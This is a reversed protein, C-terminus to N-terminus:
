NSVKLSGIRYWGDETKGENAVPITHLISNHFVVGMELDYNGTPLDAPLQYNVTFNNEGPLWGKISQSSIVVAKNLANKDKLRFAIRHDRYPPAIGQNEWKMAVHINIGPSAVNNYAIEKLALRFGMKLVLREIEPMIEKPIPRSKNSVMCTHWAIADDVITKASATWGDMYGKPIGPEFVVPGSKWLEPYKNNIPWYLRKHHPTRRGITDADGWSDARWGCNGKRFAYDDDLIRSTLASLPTNPFSKLYLDIVSHQVTVDPMLKSDCYIHWEGWLGVSGIDVQALDPHGDYRKGLASILKEHCNVFIPDSMDPVFHSGEQPCSTHTRKIGKDILWQPLGEGKPSECMIRFALAQNNNRCDELLRDIKEFAYKGEIPEIEKWYWRFYACGSKFRYDNITEDQDATRNFTQWGVGPIQLYENEKLITFGQKEKEASFTQSSCLLLLSFVVRGFIMLSEFFREGSM